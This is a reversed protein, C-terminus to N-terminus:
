HKCCSQNFYARVVSNCLRTPVAIVTLSCYKQELAFQPSIKPVTFPVQQKQVHHCSSVIVSNYLCMVFSCNWFQFFGYLTSQFDVTTKFNNILHCFSTSMFHCWDQAKREIRLNSKAKYRRLNFSLLIM